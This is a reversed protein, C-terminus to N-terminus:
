GPLLEFSGGHLPEMARFHRYDFTLIRDTQFRHALVVISLDALGPNLAAYRESLALVLRYEEVTLCEVRFRGAAIDQLFATQARTGSREGILYDIEATVPAPIVLSERSSAFFAQARERNPDRPDTAAIVPAADTIITMGSILGRETPAM